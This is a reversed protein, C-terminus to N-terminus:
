ERLAESLRTSMAAGSKPALRKRLAALEARLRENDAALEAVKAELEAERLSSSKQEDPM